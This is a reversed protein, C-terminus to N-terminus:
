ICSKLLNQAIKRQKYPLDNIKKTSSDSFDFILNEHLFAIFLLLINTYLEINNQVEPIKILSNLIRYSWKELYRKYKPSEYFDLLSNYINIENCIVKM